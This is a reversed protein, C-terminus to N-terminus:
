TRGCTGIEYDADLDFCCVGLAEALALNAGDGFVRSGKLEILGSKLLGLPERQPATISAHTTEQGHRSTIAGPEPEAPASTSVAHSTQSASARVQNPASCM